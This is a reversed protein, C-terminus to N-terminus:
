YSWPYEGPNDQGPIYFSGSLPNYAMGAPPWSPSVPPYGGYRNYTQSGYPSSWPTWGSM